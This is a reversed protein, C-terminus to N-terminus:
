SFRKEGRIYVEKVCQADGNYCLRSLVHAPTNYGGTGSLPDARLYDIVTFDADKGPDMSGIHNDLQLVKAGGLTALYFAGRTSVSASNVAEGMQRFMSLSPGGAIDTGLGIQLGADRLRAFPMVGSRLTRNSYPCFAVNTRSRALESIEPDSLHICHGLITRSGLMGASVYVDTYSSREPFLSRVWKVEDVNESLHSQIFAQREAAVESIGRMLEMSCSGAFRPAFAYRLRGHDFGDWKELLSISDSLSQERSELLIDPANRDMMSKGMFARIGSEAASQFAIDTAEAHVSCYVAACTTGNAILQAFFLRSIVQAYEPNSFREEEPFTYLKLWELLTGGDIGMIALQPLHVHTDIFGPLIACPGFDHFPASPFESRPDRDTLREIRGDRVVLYGPAYFDVRDLSVPNMILGKFVELRRIAHTTM